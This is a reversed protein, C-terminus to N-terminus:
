VDPFKGAMERAKMQENAIDVLVDPNIPAFYAACYARATALHESEIAEDSSLSFATALEAGSGVCVRWVDLDVLPDISSVEGPQLLYFPKLGAEVGQFVASTGRYLLWRSALFDTELAGQESWEVNAPLDRLFAVETLLQERQLVPHLRIRFRVEPILRAAEAAASILPVSESVLGEPLILCRAPREASLAATGRRVSGLVGIRLHPVHMLGTLKDRAVLGATLVHDPDLAPGLSATMARPEPFLVAHSYGVCQVDPVAHRVSMMALREWAHGEYTTVLVRPRLRQALLGLQMGIRLAARAMGSRAHNAARGAIEALRPDRAASQRLSRGAAALAFGNRLEEVPSLTQALLVRLTAQPKWRPTIASWPLGTHNILAIACRLGQRELEAPLKGYYLDQGTEAQELRLLHSVFLIDIPEGIGDGHWGPANNFVATKLDRLGAIAPKWGASSPEKHRGILPGYLVLSAPHINRPHLYPNAILAADQCDRLLEGSIEALHAFRETLQLDAGLVTADAM